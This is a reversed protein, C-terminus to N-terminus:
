AEVNRGVEDLGGAPSTPKEVSKLGRVRLSRGNALRRDTSARIVLQPQVIVAKNRPRTKSGLLSLTLRATREGIQETHQDISSLPIRLKADYYLNGAGIVAVDEPVRLGADLIAEIAGIAMPDNYAFIGDPRPNLSLLRKTLEAGSETSHVDVTGLAIVYGPLPKMKYKALTRLYGNLRGVGASTEPGRLHAIRKCGIEILHELAAEGIMEDNAGVYNTDLDRFRRDILVLPPGHRLIRKFIESSTCASAVILADLKRGLLRNLTREELEPDEDSTAIILHYDKKLLASSLSKAIEAFFTHLLDPVVLGVLNSRGTVLARAALNPTYDLEKVRRLVRKRTEESVDDKNRMVKSVTIVAIGLDRAIDKMTVAM